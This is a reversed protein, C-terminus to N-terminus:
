CAYLLPASLASKKTVCTNHYIWYKTNIKLWLTCLLHGLAQVNPHAIPHRKHTCNDDKMGDWKQRLQAGHLTLDYLPTGYYRWNEGFNECYVGWPESTLALYPTYRTLNFDSECEAEKHYCYQISNIIYQIANYRRRITSDYYPGTVIITSSEPWRTRQMGQTCIPVNLM